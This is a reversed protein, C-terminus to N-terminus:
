PESQQGEIEWTVEMVGYELLLKGALTEMIRDRNGYSLIKAEVFAHQPNGNDFSKLSQLRLNGDSKITDLMTVRLHNEVKELCKIRFGYFFTGTREDEPMDPIANVKRGIPRLLLHALMVAVATVTAEAYLGVGSLCGVAASCWITAATNLGQVNLGDKMIVGAGLFGIGTVIQGAVRSPDGTDGTLSVSLLVFASAGLSVLTNTRLGASKQRYQREFGIASGLLFALGLRIVFEFITM